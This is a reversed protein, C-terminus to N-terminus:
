RTRRRVVLGILGIGSLLLAWEGPEPVALTISGGYSGGHPEVGGYVRLTYNGAALLSPTAGLTGIVTFPSAPIPLVGGSGIALPAPLSASSSWTGSYLESFLSTLGTSGPFNTSVASWGISGNSAISFQVFDDFLGASMAHGFSGASTILSPTTSYATTTVPAMANASGVFLISLLLAFVKSKIANM